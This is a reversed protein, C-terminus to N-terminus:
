DLKLPVFNTIVLVTQGQLGKLDVAPEVSAQQFMATDKKTVDTVYGVLIGAPFVGGVGSTIVKDGTKIPLRQDIYKMTLLPTGQGDVVGNARSSQIIASVSSSVDSILLVKATVPSLRVVRGVLGRTTMVTMGIQIGDNAGRNIIVSRVLNSADQGIVEAPIWQYGPQARKLNLQERLQANERELESLRVNEQTLRDVTQRLRENERRLEGITQIAQLLNAVPEIATTTAWQLPAIGRAALDEVLHLPAILRIAILGIALVFGLYYLVSRM